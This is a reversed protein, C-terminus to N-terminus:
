RNVHSYKLYNVLTVNFVGEAKLEVKKYGPSLVIGKQWGPMYGAAKLIDYNEMGAGPFVGEGDIWGGYQMKLYDTIDLGEVWVSFNDVSSQFLSIGPHVAHNHPESTHGHPNPSIDGGDISLGTGNLSVASNSTTGGGSVPIAFPQVIIKFEFREYYILDPSVSIYFTAPHNTDGQRTYEMGFIDVVKNRRQLQEQRGDRTRDHLRGAVQRIASDYTIM